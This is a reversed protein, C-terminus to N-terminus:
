SQPCKSFPTEILERWQSILEPAVGDEELFGISDTHLKLFLCTKESIPNCHHLNWYFIKYGLISYFVYSFCDSINKQEDVPATGTQGTSLCEKNEVAERDAEEWHHCLSPASVKGGFQPLQPLALDFSHLWVNSSEPSVWTFSKLSIWCLYTDLFYWLYVITVHYCVLM